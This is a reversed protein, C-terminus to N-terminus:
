LRSKPNDALQPDASHLRRMRKLAGCDLDHADWSAKLIAHVQELRRPQHRTRQVM